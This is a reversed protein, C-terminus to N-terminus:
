ERLLLWLAEEAREHRPWSLKSDAIARLYAHILFFRFQDPDPSTSESFFAQQEALLRSLDPNYNRGTYLQLDTTVLYWAADALDPADAAQDFDILWLEPGSEILNVLAFDGSSWVFPLPTTLKASLEAMASFGARAVRRESLMRGLSMDSRSQSIWAEPYFDHTSKTVTRRTNFWKGARESSVRLNHEDADIWEFLAIRSSPDHLVLSPIRDRGQMAAYFESYKRAWETSLAPHGRAFRKIAVPIDRYRGKWVTRRERASIKKEVSLDGPLRSNLLTFM